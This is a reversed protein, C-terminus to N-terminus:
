GVHSAADLLADFARTAVSPVRDRLQLRTFARRIQLGHVGIRRLRGLAVLDAAALESVLALGLGAAAAQKVGETSGLTLTWDPVVGVRRLAAVAVRRTGSGRERSVFPQGTLEHATVSGRDAFPHTAGALLVLEDDRWPRVDIRAHAVPGEVLAVDLRRQLLRRAIARTNATTVRLHVGPHRARFDGLLAPLLYTAITTSAGVRLTGGELGRLARLEEEASREVSFLERARAHLADGAETLRVGGVGREFLPTGVERELIRVAKSVAPQSLRLSEAARTFGRHDAVAAFVRLANLNLAM